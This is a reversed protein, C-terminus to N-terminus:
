RRAGGQHDHVGPRADHGRGVQGFRNHEYPTVATSKTGDISSSNRSSAVPRRLAGRQGPDGDAALCQGVLQRGAEAAASSPGGQVVQVPGGLGRHVHQAPGGVTARDRETHGAPVHPGVDQVAVELRDGGTRGTLQVQGAHLQRVAIQVAGPEVARANRRRGTRRRRAGTGCRRHPASAGPRGVRIGRDCGVILDLQTTHADLGASISVTSAVCGATAEARPPRGCRGAPPRSGAAPHRAPTSAARVRARGRQGIWM